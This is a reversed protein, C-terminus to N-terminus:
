KSNINEKDTVAVSRENGEKGQSFVWESIAIEPINHHGGIFTMTKMMKVKSM